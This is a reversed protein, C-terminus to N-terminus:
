NDAIGIGIAIPVDLVNLNGSTNIKENSGMSSDCLIIMLM